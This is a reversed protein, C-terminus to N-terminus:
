TQCIELTSIVDNSLSIGTSITAISNALLGVCRVFHQFLFKLVAHNSRPLRELLKKIELLKMHRDPMLAIHELDSM